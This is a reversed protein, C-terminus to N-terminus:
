SRFMAKLLVSANKVAIPLFQEFDMHAGSNANDSLSRICVFPRENLACVQAISASEMECALAQFHTHIAHARAPDAIFQDGTAIRGIKVQRNTLQQAAQWAQQRLPADTPFDFYRCRYIQGLPLGLPRVDMDHQILTDAIVVDGPRLDPDLGGAIGINMVRDVHFHSILLQTCLAANVKGVGGVVAVVPHGFFFGRHFQLGAIQQCQPTHLHQLIISLEEDMAVIIGTLASPNNMVPRGGLM